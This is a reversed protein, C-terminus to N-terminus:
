IIGGVKKKPHGVVDRLKQRLEVQREALQVARLKESEDDEDGDRDPVQRLVRVRHGLTAEDREGSHGPKETDEGHPRREARRADGVEQAQRVAAHDLLREAPHLRHDRERGDRERDVFGRKEGRLLREPPDPDCPIAMPARPARSRRRSGTRRSRSSSSRGGSPTRENSGRSSTRGRARNCGCRRIRPSRAPPSRASSRPARACSHAVERLFIQESRRVRHEVVRLRAAVPELAGRAPFGELGVHLEEAFRGAELVPVVHLLVVAVVRRRDPGHHTM